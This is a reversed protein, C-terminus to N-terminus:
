SVGIDSGRRVAEKIKPIAENEIFDDSMVNGSFTINAGSGGGRNMRNLNEAGIADVADRNMVFEGQEAEIMTGGQSHLRGGVLGGQAMKPPKQAAIMAVQVAGLTAVIAAMPIGFLGGQGLAKTYGQSTNMVAEAIALGQNLRFQILMQKNAEKRAEAKKKETKKNIEEIDGQQQRRSKKDWLRTKKLADIEAKGEQDFIEMKVESAARIKDIQGQLHESLVDQIESFDPMETGFISQFQLGQLKEKMEELGKFMNEDFLQPKEKSLQEAAKIQADLLAIQGEETKFYAQELQKLLEIEEKDKKIKEKGEETSEKQKKILEKQRDVLRALGKEQEETLGNFMRTAQADLILGEIRELEADITKDYEKNLAELTDTYFKTADATAKITQPAGDFTTVLKGVNDDVQKAAPKLLYFAATLAGIGLVIPNLLLAFLAKGVGILAVKAATLAVVLAGGIGKSLLAFGMNIALAGVGVKKFLLTLSVVIATAKVFSKILRADIVEALFVMAESVAILVPALVDGFEKGLLMTSVQMRAIHANTSLVEGGLGDVIIKSQRLVENNFATKKQADTLNKTLLGQEKAFRKYATESKVIIGINDLMLKSQRGMGTVMSEISSVTDRGLAQGLRQATDFLQAMEDESKVIGLMMANNAQKMLEMDSVTGDTAQRLKDLGETTLDISRGLSNFGKELDKFDASLKVINILPKILLSTAFGALLMKNRYVSITAQLRTFATSNANVAATNSSVRKNVLDQTKAVKVNTANLKNLQGNLQQTAKHLEKIAKVLPVNGTPIFKIEIKEQAM